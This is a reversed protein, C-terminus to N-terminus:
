AGGKEGQDDLVERSHNNKLGEEESPLESAWPGRELTEGADEKASTTRRFPLSDNTFQLGLRRETGRRWPMSGLLDAVSVRAVGAARLWRKHLSDRGGTEHCVSAVGLLDGEESLCHPVTDCTRDQWWWWGRTARHQDVHDPTTEIAEACVMHRCDAGVRGTAHAVVVFPVLCAGALADGRVAVGPQWL